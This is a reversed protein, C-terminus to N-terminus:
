GNGERIGGRRGNGGRSSRGRFFRGALFVAALSPDAAAYTGTQSGANGPEFGTQALHTGPLAAHAGAALGDRSL